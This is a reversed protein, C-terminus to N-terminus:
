WTIPFIQDAAKQRKQPSEAGLVWVKQYEQTWQKWGSMEGHPDRHPDVSFDPHLRRGSIMQRFAWVIQETTSM